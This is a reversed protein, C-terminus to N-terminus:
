GCGTGGGPWCCWRWRDAAALEGVRQGAVVHGRGGGHDAQERVAGALRWVWDDVAQVAPATVPWVVLATVVAAGALLGGSVLLGRRSDVLM